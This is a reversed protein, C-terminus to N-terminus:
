SPALYNVHIGERWSTLRLSRMLGRLGWKSTSYQFSGPQDIYVALSGQFIFCRDRNGSEPQNRMHHVALKLTFIVGVLNVQLCDLRPKIFESKWPSSIIVTM